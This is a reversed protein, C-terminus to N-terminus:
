TQPAARRPGCGSARCRCRGPSHTPVCVCVGMLISWLPTLTHESKLDTLCSLQLQFLLEVGLQDEEVAGWLGHDLPGPVDLVPILAWPRSLPGKPLGPGPGETKQESAANKPAQDEVNERAPARKRLCPLRASAGTAAASVSQYPGSPSRLFPRASGTGAPRLAAMLMSLMTLAPHVELKALGETDM